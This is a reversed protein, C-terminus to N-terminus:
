QSSLQKVVGMDKIYWSDKQRVFNYQVLLQKSYSNNPNLQTGQYYRANEEVRAQITAVNARPNPQSISSIGINQHEYQWHVGDAKATKARDLASSLAPEALVAELQAVQHEPGMSKTKASLWKEITQKAIESTLVGDSPPLQPSAPAPPSPVAIQPSRDPRPNDPSTAVSPTSIRNSVAQFATGALWATGWLFGVGGTGVLLIRPINPRRRVRRPRVLTSSKHSTKALQGSKSAPVLQSSTQITITPLPENPYLQEFQGDITRATPMSRRRQREREFQIVNTDPENNPDLPLPEPVLPLPQEVRVAPTINGIGIRDPPTQLVTNLSNPRRLSSRTSYTATVPEVIERTTSRDFDMAGSLDGSPPVDILKPTDDAWSTVRRDTAPVRDVFDQVDRDNFYAELSPDSTLLDRFCPFAEDKLWSEIYWCLGRIFNSLGQSQQRITLLPASEPASVLIQNAEETQGLLLACIAQEIAVDIRQSLRYQLIQQATYISQPNRYTFGQAILAHVHLYTCALQMVNLATAGRDSDRALQSFLNRQEAATLHPLTEHIFPIASESNLAFREQCKVENTCASDLLEELFQIGQRRQEHRDLPLSVLSAIRYPRLRDLRRDIEGQIQPFLDEQILIKKATELHIVAEEHCGDRWEREGLQWFSSVMALVIDPKLPIIHTGNATQKVKALPVPEHRATSAKLNGSPTVAIQPQPHLSGSNSSRGNNGLYPMCISNIEEYEGLEFLILLGGLFHEAAIDLEPRLHLSNAAFNSADGAPADAEIQLREIQSQQYRERQQPDSLVEYAVTILRKRSEIAADSYEQQPLQLLRDQYAQELESLDSEPIGLIQYYDLPIRM